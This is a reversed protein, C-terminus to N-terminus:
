EREQKVTGWGRPRVATLQVIEFDVRSLDTVAPGEVPHGRLDYRAGHCPCNLLGEDDPLAVECGLHTCTSSFAAITTADVRTVIVPDDQWAVEVKIGGGIRNLAEYREEQLDILLRDPGSTATHDQAATRRIVLPLYTGGLVTTVVARSFARRNLRADPMIM